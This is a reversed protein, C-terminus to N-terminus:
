AVNKGKLSTVLSLDHSHINYGANTYEHWRQRAMQRDEIRNTVIEIIRQFRSVDPPCHDDLNLMWPCIAHEPLRDLWAGPTRDALVVPTNIALADDVSTHPVFSIPDFAWLMYDFAALRQTDTSYVLVATGALYRKYTLICATRLRDVAGFAFDVRTM